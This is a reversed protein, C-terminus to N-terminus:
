IPCLVALERARFIRPEQLGREDVPYLTASSRTASAIHRSANMRAEYQLLRLSLPFRFTHALSYSLKKMQM